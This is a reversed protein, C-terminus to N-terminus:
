RGPFLQRGLTLRRWVACGMFISDVEASAFICCFLLPQLITTKM